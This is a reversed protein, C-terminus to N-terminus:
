EMSWEVEEQRVTKKKTKFLILFPILLLFFIGLYIFMDKYTLFTAQGMIIKSILDYARSAASQQDFGKSMFGHTLQTIRQQAEPNTATINVVLNAYHKATDRAIYTTIM